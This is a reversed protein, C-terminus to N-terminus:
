LIQVETICFIIGLGMSLRLGPKQEIPALSGQVFAFLMYFAVTFCLRWDFRYDEGQETLTIASGFRTYESRCDNRKLCEYAKNLAPSAVTKNLTDYNAL